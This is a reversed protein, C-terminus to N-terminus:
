TRHSNKFGRLMIIFFGAVGAVIAYPLFQYNRAVTRPLNGSVAKAGNSLALYSSNLYDTIKPLFREAAKIEALASPTTDKRLIGILLPLDKKIVSNVLEECKSHDGLTNLASEVLYITLNGFANYIALKDAFLQSMVPFDGSNQRVLGGLFEFMLYSLDDSYLTKHSVDTMTGGKSLLQGMFKLVSDEGDDPDWVFPVRDNKQVAISNQMTSPKNEPRAVGLENSNVASVQAPEVDKPYITSPLKAAM